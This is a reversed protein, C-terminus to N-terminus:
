GICLPLYLYCSHELRQKMPLAAPFKSPVSRNHPKKTLVVQVTKTENVIAKCWSCMVLSSVEVKIDYIDCLCKQIIYKQPREGDFTWLYIQVHAGAM